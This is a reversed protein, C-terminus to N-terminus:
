ITRCSNTKALARRTVHMAELQSVPNALHNPFTVSGVLPFRMNSLVYHQKVSHANLRAQTINSRLDIGKAVRTEIIAKRLCRVNKRYLM